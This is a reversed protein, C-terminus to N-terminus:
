DVKPNAERVSAVEILNGNATGSVTVREGAMRKLIAPDGKLEYTKEGDVLAFHEGAHICFRTCDGASLGVKASHKAGCRTDTVIGEYTETAVAASQVAQHAVSQETSSGAAASHTRLFLALACVVVGASLLVGLWFHSTKSRM